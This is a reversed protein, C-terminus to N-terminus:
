YSFRAGVTFARGILDDFTNSALANNAATTPNIVPKRDFLNNINGFVEVHGRAADYITYNVSINTFYRRPIKNGDGPYTNAVAATASPTGPTLNRLMNHTYQVQVNASFAGSLYNGTFTGRWRPSNSNGITSASAPRGAFGTLIDSDFRTALLRMNVTGAAKDFIAALPFRYGLEFDVGKVTRLALNVVTNNISVIQRSVPDRTIRACFAPDSPLGATTGSNNLNTTVVGNGCGDVINPLNYNSILNKIDISWYDMSASFGSLQAPSWTVGLTKNLGEEPVLATNGGGLTAVSYTPATPLQPDLGGAINNATVGAGAYLEFLNPARVDKSRAGRLLVGAIPTYVFGVKSSTISGTASYNARRMALNLEFSKAGPMDKLLPVITEVFAEKVNFQGVTPKQVSFQFAGAEPVLFDSIAPPLLQYPDVASAMQEKRYELGGAVSVKGAWTSFPEAQTTVGATTQKAPIYENSTGTVYDKVAKTFSNPGFPNAPVCAAKDAASLTLYSLGAPNCAAAGNITVVNLAAHFKPQIINDIIQITDVSQGYTAYAGWTWNDTISGKLSFSARQMKSVNHTRPSGLEPM